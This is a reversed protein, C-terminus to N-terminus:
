TGVVCSSINRSPLIYGGDMGGGFFFILILWHNWRWGLHSMFVFSGVVPSLKPGLFTTFGFVTITQGREVPGFIDSLAGGVIALSASGGFGIIFRCVLITNLNSAVAVPIHFISFVLM